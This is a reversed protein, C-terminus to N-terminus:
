GSHGANVFADTAMFVDSGVLRFNQFDGLVPFVLFWDGPNLNVIGRIKHMECMLPMYLGLQFALFTMTRNLGHVHYLALCVQPHGPADTTVRFFFRLVASVTICAM